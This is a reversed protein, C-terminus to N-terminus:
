IAFRLSHVLAKVDSPGLNSPVSAYFVAPAQSDGRDVVVVAGAESSFALGQGVADPYSMQFTVEWAQHGSVQIASSGELIQYHQLGSYYAPDMAGALSMATPELDAPGSYQFQQQLLGSCADGYWPAGSVTGAVAHEGASWGFMPTNLMDPCGRRWRSLLRYSLGSHADAIKRIRPTTNSSRVTKRLASPSPKLRSSAAPAARQTPRVSASLAAPRAVTPPKSIDKIMLAIVVLVLATVGTLVWLM